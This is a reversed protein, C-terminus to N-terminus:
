KPYNPYGNTKVDVIPENNEIISDKSVYLQLDYLKIKLDALKRLESEDVNKYQESWGSGPDNCTTLLKGFPYYNLIYNGTKKSVVEYYEKNKDSNSYHEYLKSIAQSRLTDPHGSSFYLTSVAPDVKNFCAALTTISFIVLLLHAKKMPSKM